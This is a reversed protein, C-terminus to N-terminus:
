TPRARRASCSWRRWRSSADRAPREFRRAMGAVAGIAVTVAIGAVTIGAVDIREAGAVFPQLGLIMPELGGGADLADSRWAAVIAACGATLAVSAAVAAALRRVTVATLLFALGAIVVPAIVADNYRGYVIQDPRMRGAMFLVSVAVCSAAVILVVAADRRAPGATTPPPARRLSRLLALTGYLVIGATTILLYWTQGALAILITGPAGLHDIVGGLSNTTSPTDWLRDFVFGAAFRVAVM